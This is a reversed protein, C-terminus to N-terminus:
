LCAVGGPNGSVANQPQHTIRPPANIEPAQVQLNGNPDFLFQSDQAYVLTPLLLVVTAAYAVLRSRHPQSLPQRPELTKRM